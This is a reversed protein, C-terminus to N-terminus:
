MDSDTRPVTRDMEDLLEKPYTETHPANDATPKRAATKVIEMNNRAEEASVVDVALERM